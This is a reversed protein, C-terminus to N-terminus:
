CLQGYPYYRGSPGRPATKLREEAKKRAAHQVCKNVEERTCLITASIICDGKSVTSYLNNINKLHQGDNNNDNIYDFCFMAQLITTKGCENVGVLPIIRSSLDITLGKSIARYKEITFSKYKM